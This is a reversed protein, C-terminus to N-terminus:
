ADDGYVHLLASEPSPLPSAEAEELAKDVERMAEARVEAFDGPGLIGSEELRTRFRLVCDHKKEEALM